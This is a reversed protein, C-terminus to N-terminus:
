TENEIVPHRILPDLELLGMTDAKLDEAIEHMSDTAFHAFDETSSSDGGGDTMSEILRKMDDCQDEQDGSVSNNNPGDM